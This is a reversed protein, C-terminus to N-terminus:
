KSFQKWLQNLTDIIYDVQDNTLAPYIPLSIVSQSLQYANQFQQQEAQFRAVDVDYASYPVFPSLRNTSLNTNPPTVEPLNRNIRTHTEGTKRGVPIGMVIANPKTRSSRSRTNVHSIPQNPHVKKRSRWWVGGKRKRTKRREIVKNTKRFM